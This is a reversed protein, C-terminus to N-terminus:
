VPVDNVMQLLTLTGTALMSFEGSDTRQVDFLYDGVPLSATDASDMIVDFIGAPGNVIVVTGGGTTKTILIPLVEITKRVAFKISWGTIDEVPDMTFELTKDEGRYYSITETIAM